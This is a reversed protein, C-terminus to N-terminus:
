KGTGFVHRIYEYERTHETYVGYQLSAGTVNGFIESKPRISQILNENESSIGSRSGSCILVVPEIWFHLLCNAYFGVQKEFPGKTVKPRYAVCPTADSARRAWKHYRLHCETCARTSVLPAVARRPDALLGATAWNVAQSQVPRNFGPM